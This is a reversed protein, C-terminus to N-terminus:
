MPITGPLLVALVEPLAWSWRISQLKVPNSILILAGASELDSFTALLNDNTDYVEITGDPDSQGTTVFAAAFVDIEFAPIEFTVTFNEGNAIGYSHAGSRTPDESAGALVSGGDFTATIPSEGIVLPDILGAGVSFVEFSTVVTNNSPRDTITFGLDDLSLKGSVNRFKLEKIGDLFDFDSADLIMDSDAVFSQLPPNAGPSINTPLGEIIGNDALVFLIDPPQNINGRPEIRGAGTNEAVYFQIEDMGRESVFVGEQGPGLTIAKTGSHLLAPDELTEVTFGVIKIRNPEEGIFFEGAGSIDEFDTFVELDQPLASLLVPFLLYILSLSVLNKTRMNGGM